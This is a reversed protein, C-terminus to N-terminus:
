WKAPTENESQRELLAFLAAGFALWSFLSIKLNWTRDAITYTGSEKLMSRTLLYALIYGSVYFTIILTM